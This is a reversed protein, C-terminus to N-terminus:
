DPCLCLAQAIIKGTAETDQIGRQCQGIFLDAVYEMRSGTNEFSVPEYITRMTNGLRSETTAFDEAIYHGVTSFNDGTAAIGRNWQDVFVLNM